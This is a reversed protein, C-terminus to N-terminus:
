ERGLARNYTALTAEATQRWTFLASRALARRSLGARFAPDTALRALLSALPRPDGLPFTAGGDGLIEPLCTADAALAPCGVAMAEVLQLGFGEYESPYAFALAEAYLAPLDDDDVYGLLKLRDAVGLATARDILRGRDAEKGGALVLALDPVGSAALADVLFGVNKRGEWGGIYFVYRPPLGLKRRVEARAEVPLPRAFGPDAAEYTVDVRDAPLGFVRVLDSKAHHSVTIVRHARTRAEWHILRSLTARPTWRDRWPLRPRYYAWDIADHLTLVRPCRTSWPLGFNFPSHLLDVRDARCRGPLWSQEWRWYPMAPAVEARWSGAPLRDLHATAIPTASYLVLEVGLAPLEALLNVAYRNWGRLSGDSLLRANVGLRLSGAM